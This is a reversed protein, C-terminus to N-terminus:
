AWATGWVYMRQGDCREVQRWGPTGSPPPSSWKPAGSEVVFLSGNSGAATWAANGVPNTVMVSTNAGAATWQPTASITALLAGNPGPSIASPLVSSPASIASVSSATEQLSRWQLSGGTYTLYLAATSSTPFTPLINLSWGEDSQSIGYQGNSVPQLRSFNADLDRGRISSAGAQSAFKIM